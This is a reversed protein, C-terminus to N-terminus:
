PSQKANEAVIQSVMDATEIYGNDVIVKGDFIAYILENTGAVYIFTFENRIEAGFSNQADVYSQVAVYFPNAVIAWNNIKPFDASKPAKLLSKVAEQTWYQYNSKESIDMTLYWEEYYMMDYTVQLFGFTEENIFNIWFDDITESPCRYRLAVGTDTIIASHEGAKVGFDELVNKKGTYKYDDKHSTFKIVENNVLVFSIEGFTKENNYNYNVCPIEFAGNCTGDSIDDPEGLLAILEEGTINAFQEVDYIINTADALNNEEQQSNNHKQNPTNNLTGNIKAQNATIGVVMFALIVCIIVFVSKKLGKQKGLIHPNDKPSKSLVFFMLALICFFATMSLMFPGVIISMPVYLIAFVCCIISLIKMGRRPKVSHDQIVNNQASLANEYKKLTTAATSPEAVKAGCKQCFLMEDEMPNGCKSCYKM